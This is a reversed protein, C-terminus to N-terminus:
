ESVRMRIGKAIREMTDAVIRAARRADDRYDPKVNAPNVLSAAALTLAVAAGINCETLAAAKMGVVAALETVYNMLDRDCDCAPADLLAAQGPALGVRIDTM